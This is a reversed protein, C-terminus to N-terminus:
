NNELSNVKEKLEQNEAKLQQVQKNMDIMYLTLEEIKQLLKADMEGLNIGNETVEVESPIEPLHRKETIHQEVEELTRLEYDDEFVFDSWGTAEVKIERAGISGEVRLKHNGSFDTTGIGVKGSNDMVFVKDQSWDIGRGIIFKDSDSNDIGAVWRQVGTLLFQLKSDGSGDQEITFGVHENTMSNNNRLHLKSVPSLIGIGVNGGNIFSDGNARLIVDAGTNSDYLNLQGNDASTAALSARISSSNASSWISLGNYYSTGNTGSKISLPSQPNILNIGTFGNNEVTFRVNVNPDATGSSLRLIAKNAESSVQNIYVSTGTGNRLFQHYQTNNTDGYKIQGFCLISSSTLIALFFSKM